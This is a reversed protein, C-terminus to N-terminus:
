GPGETTSAAPLRLTTHSALEYVHEDRGLVILHVAPIVVDVTANHGSLARQWPQAPGAARSYAVSIHPMWEAPDPVAAASWTEAIAARLGDRVQTLGTAPAVDLLIGEAAVHAPGIRVRPPPTDALHRRAATVIAALDAGPVEDTFGVGQVTLHLWRAPVLDLGPLGALRNQAQAALRRVAPLGTFTVHWAYMRRGPRWGPRWWWHDTLTTVMSRWPLVASSRGGPSATAPLVIYRPHIPLNSRITSAAIATNTTREITIEASLWKNQIAM